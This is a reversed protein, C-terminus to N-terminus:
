FLTRNPTLDHDSIFLDDDSLQKTLDGSNTETEAIIEASASNMMDSVPSLKNLIEAYSESGAKNAISYEGFMGAISTHLPELCVKIKAMYETVRASNDPKLRNFAELLMHHNNQLEIFRSQLRKMEENIIELHEGSIPENPHQLVTIYISFWKAIEDGLNKLEKEANLYRTYVPELINSADNDVLTFYSRPYRPIISGNEPAQQWAELVQYFKTAATKSLIAGFYAGITTGVVPVMTGIAGGVTGGAVGAFALGFKRDTHLPNQPSQSTVVSAVAEAIETFGPAVSKILQGANVQLFVKGIICVIEQAQEETSKNKNEEKLLYSTIISSLGTVSILLQGFYLNNLVIKKIEKILARKTQNETQDLTIELIATLENQQNDEPNDSKNYENIIQQAIQDNSYANLLHKKTKNRRDTFLTGIKKTFWNLDTRFTDSYYPREILFLAWWPRYKKDVLDGLIPKIQEINKRTAVFPKPDNNINSYLFGLLDHQLEPDEFSDIASAIKIFDNDSLLGQQLSKAIEIAVTHNKLNEKRFLKFPNWSRVETNAYTKLKNICQEKSIPSIM